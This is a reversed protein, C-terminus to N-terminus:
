KKGWLDELRFRMRAEPHFIHVIIEGCDVLAWESQTIGELGVDLSTNSHVEASIYEAISAVNKTSRGSAIIMYKALPTSEPLSIVTINEAKKDELLNIIYLKLDDTNNIM